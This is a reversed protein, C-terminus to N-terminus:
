SRSGPRDDMLEPCALLDALEVPADIGFRCPPRGEGGVFSCWVHGGADDRNLTSGCRPCDYPVGPPPPPADHPTYDFAAPGALLRRCLAEIPAEATRTCALNRAKMLYYRRGAVEIALTSLGAHPDVFLVAGTAQAAVLLPAVRDLLYAWQAAPPDCIYPAFPAHIAVRM